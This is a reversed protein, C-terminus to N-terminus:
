LRLGQTLEVIRQVLDRTLLGKNAVWHLLQYVPKSLDHLLFPEEKVLHYGEAYLLPSNSGKQIRDMIVQLRRGKYRAYDEKVFLRIWFLLRSSPNKLFLQEIKEAM